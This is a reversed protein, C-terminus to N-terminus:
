TDEDKVEATAPLKEELDDNAQRHDDDEDDSIAIISESEKKVMKDKALKRQRMIRWRQVKIDLVDQNETGGTSKQVVDVPLALVFHNPIWNMESM